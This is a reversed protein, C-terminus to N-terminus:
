PKVILITLQTEYSTKCVIPSSAKAKVFHTHIFFYSICNTWVIHVLLPHVCGLRAVQLGEGGGCCTSGWSGATSCFPHRVMCLYVCTSVSLHVPLYSLCLYSYTITYMYICLYVCLYICLYVCLYVCLYICTYVCTFVSEYVHLYM